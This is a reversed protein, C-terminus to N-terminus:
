SKKKPDDTPNVYNLGFPGTGTVQVVSGDGETWVSHPMNAPLYTFGGAHMIDGRSQDLKEGMQHYLEGSIVTLNEATAHTHPAVVTHAPFRVQLVFPGSKGPDGLLVAIETGKPLNPPGPQWKVAADSQLLVMSGADEAFAPLETAIIIIIAAACIKSRM